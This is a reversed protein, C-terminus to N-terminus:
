TPVTLIRGVTVDGNVPWCVVGHVAKSVTCTSYGIKLKLGCKEWNQAAFPAPTALKARVIKQHVPMSVIGSMCAPLEAHPEFAM